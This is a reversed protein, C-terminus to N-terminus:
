LSYLVNAIDRRLVLSSNVLNQFEKRLRKKKRSKNKIWPTGKYFAGSRALPAQCGTSKSLHRNLHQIHTDNQYFLSLSLHLRRNKISYPLSLPKTMPKKTPMYRHLLAMYGLKWSIGWVRLLGFAVKVEGV